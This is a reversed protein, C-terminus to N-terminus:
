KVQKGVSTFAQLAYQHSDKRGEKAYSTFTANAGPITVDYGPSRRPRRRQRGEGTPSTGKVKRVKMREGESAM